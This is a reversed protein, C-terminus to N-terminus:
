SKRGSHVLIKDVSDQTLRWDTKKWMHGAEIRGADRDTGVIWTAYCCEYLTVAVCGDTYILAHRERMFHRVLASDLGLSSTMMKYDEIHDNTIEGIFEAEVPFLYDPHDGSEIELMTGDARICGVPLGNPLHEKGGLKKCHEVHCNWDCYNYFDENTKSCNLCPRV